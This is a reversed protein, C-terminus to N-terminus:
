TMRIFFTWSWLRYIPFRLALQWSIVVPPRWQFGLTLYSSPYVGGCHSSTQIYFKLHIKFIM